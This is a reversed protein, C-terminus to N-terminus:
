PLLLPGLWLVWVVGGLVAGVLTPAITRVRRGRPMATVIFWYGLVLSALGLLIFISQPIGTLASVMMEDPGWSVRNGRLKLFLIPLPWTWRFPTVLGVAFVFSLPGPGSRRVALVCAIIILYSVIPGAAAGIAAQWPEAIAAAAEVDGARFLRTFEGAGSWNASSFRLVPDPFGLGAYAGFHGLEHLLVAIPFAIAGGAVSAWWSGGPWRSRGSTKM